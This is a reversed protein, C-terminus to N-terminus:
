DDDNEVGFMQWVDESTAYVEDVCSIKEREAGAAVLDRVIAAATDAKMIPVLLHDYEPWAALESLAKVPLGEGRLSVARADLWLVLEAFHTKTLFDYLARGFVGAGYIVIRSGRRVDQFPFLFTLAEADPLLWLSRPLLITTLIYTRLQALLSEQQAQGVFSASVLKWLSRFNALDDEGLRARFQSGAHQVYHYLPRDLMIMSQCNVMYPFTVCVDDGLSIGAEVQGQWYVVHERRFLKGWLYPWISWDSRFDNHFLVPLVERELRIRDYFGASLSSTQERAQGDQDLYHAGIVLEAGSAVAASYLSECLEPEVWDDADVFTVYPARAMSLGIKRAETSGRNAQHLVHIRLDEAAATDCLKDSGDTSGDDVLIIEIDELTQKCLSGLCIPLNDAANYVPVIISVKLM